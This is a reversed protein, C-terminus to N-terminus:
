RCCGAGQCAWGQSRGFCYSSFRSGIFFFCIFNIFLILFCFYSFLINLILKCVQKASNIGADLTAFMNDIGAVIHKILQKDPDSYEASFELGRDPALPYYSFNFGLTVGPVLMVSTKASISDPAVMFQARFFLGFLEFGGSVTINFESESLALFFYPGTTGTYDTIALGPIGTIKDLVTAIYIGTNPSVVVTAQQVM